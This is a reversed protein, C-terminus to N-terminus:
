SGFPLVSPKTGLHVPHPSSSWAGSAASAAVYDSFDRPERGLARQVGDSLYADEGDRVLRSLGVVGAAVDAPYYHEALYEEYAALPLPVQRISLGTVAAIAALAENVTLARPGSLDYIKGDHGGQTLAAVAVAAIDGADIFPHAGGGTGFAVEGARVGDAFFPEESFNQAFWVPRLVTWALGSRRVINERALAAADATDVWERASLLVLRRVGSVVALTTLSRLREVGDEGDYPVVYVAHAGELVPAWTQDDGWDFRIPSRRSAARVPHGLQELQGAVRRGTKGSGGLVVITQKMCGM